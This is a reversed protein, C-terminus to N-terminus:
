FLHPDSLARKLTHNASTLTRAFEERNVTLVELGGRDVRQLEERSGVVYLSARKKTGAETLTLTGSDFDFVALTRRGDPMVKKQKWHLRGAIMLHLVLWLEAPSYEGTSSTKASLGIVIRKGMRRLEVVKRGEASEIPPTATRLLSPGAILVRELT